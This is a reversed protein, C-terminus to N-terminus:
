HVRLYILYQVIDKKMEEPLYNFKPMQTNPIGENIIKNLDNESLKNGVSTISHCSACYSEFAAQGKLQPIQKVDNKEEKSSFYNPPFFFSATFICVLLVLVFVFIKIPLSSKM